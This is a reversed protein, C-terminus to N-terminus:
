IEKKPIKYNVQSQYDSHISRLKDDWSQEIDLDKKQLTEVVADRNAEVALLQGIKILGQWGRVSVIVYDSKVEESGVEDRKETGKAAM